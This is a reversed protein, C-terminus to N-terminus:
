GHSPGKLSNLYYPLFSCRTSSWNTTYGLGYSPIKTFKWAKKHITLNFLLFEQLQFFLAVAGYLFEVWLNLYRTLYKKRTKKTEDEKRNKLFQETRWFWPGHTGKSTYFSAFELNGHTQSLRQSVGIPIKRIFFKAIGGLEFVNESRLFEHWTRHTM